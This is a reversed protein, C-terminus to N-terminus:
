TVTAVIEGTQATDYGGLAELQSRVRQHNLTSLLHRVPPEELYEKPIAMDYRVRQLPVFGLGHAAAVSATSVGAHARGESVARAVELHGTAIKEFGCVADQPVRAEDLSRELLQRAGAGAERNVIVVGPQALDAVSKIGLPNGAQVVLGEEWVGLNVLVVARGLLVQRVFPVNYQGSVPDYLHVGAAHVEGRSLRRLGEMSNAFVWHVRLGPHWREAAQAWLSLAPSCGALMVTHSLSDPDDLLKVRMTGAGLALSGAGDAPIVESRYAQDGVLPHAVWRGGVRGLMVRLGDGAPTGAAPIADIDPMDEELWFLDEVRCGLARAIRLAVAASPAYLDSEVGSITQRTVGAAAALDQQSLGQRTRIQKLNNRLRGDAKM